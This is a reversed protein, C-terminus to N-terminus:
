PAARDSEDALAAYLGTLARLAVLVKERARLREPRTLQGDAMATVVSAIAKGHAKVDDACLANIDAEEPAIPLFVGGALLALYEAAATAGPETIAAVKAFSIEEPSRPDTFAYTQSHGLQLKVMVRKIGGLQDFLDAMARKPTGIERPKVALFAPRSM